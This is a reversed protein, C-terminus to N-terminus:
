CFYFICAHYQLFLVYFLQTLSISVKVFDRAEVIVILYSLLEYNISRLKKLTNSHQTM